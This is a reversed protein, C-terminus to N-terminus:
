LNVPRLRHLRRTAQVIEVQPAHRLHLGRRNGVPHRKGIVAVLQDGDVQVAALQGDDVAAREAADAAEVPRRIAAPQGVAEAAREVGALYAQVPQRIGRRIRVVSSHIPRVRRILRRDFALGEGYGRRHQMIDARRKVGVAFVEIEQAEALEVGHIVPQMKVQAKRPPHPRIQDRQLIIQGIGENRPGVELVLIALVPVVLM